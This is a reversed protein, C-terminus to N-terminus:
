SAARARTARVGARAYLVTAIIAMVLGPYMLPRPGVKPLLQAVVGAALIIGGSFPLFAFGAKLPSYGMVNQIFLSLFFFMSFMAAPLLMMAVFSAARSRNAFVRFPLLPHAVRSEIFVFTGLLVVSAALFPPRGTLLYYLTAGLGYVDSAPGLDDLRGAAQEAAHGRQGAGAPAFGLGIADVGDTRDSVDERM